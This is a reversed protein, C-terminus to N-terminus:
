QSQKRLLTAPDYISTIKMAYSDQRAIDEDTVFHVDLLGNCRYGTKLFNMESLALSWGDLWDKLKAMQQETANSHILLDIDSNLQASCTNTSGFLYVAKVGFLEFDMSDAIKEAMYHRWKWGQARQNATEAVSEERYPNEREKEQPTDLYAVAIELDANMRVIMENGYFSKPVDIVKVVDSLHSYNPIIESFYNKSNNFFSRNFVSKPDEPYLPLYHIGSEVMDQFFHTGFSLEPRFMSKEGAVELLMATNCIDSYTVPVGLKIDGRSGWRGPGILIFTKKALRQNLESVAKGVGIMDQYSELSAYKEPDVYVVTKIGSVKGNSVYRSSSFIQTKQWIDSPIAPPDKADGKSQPRCQLLYLSEGDSAFEIDVAVGLTEKLEYLISHLQQIVSTKKVLGDFTVLFVDKKFDTTIPNMERLLDDKIVSVVHQLCPIKEGYERILQEIPLTLFENNEVDIVDLFRSSYKQMEEPIRNLTLQPQGPSILLPYDDKLRDVARTGLGMVLRVLGDERKIRPSWRFENNSFAVGAFLPFYYPGVQKGVVEQIIIGMQESCDLLNRQARYEIADPNFVSAYVELISDVVRDLRERKNGIYPIFLSKYKGSFSSGIQDELMSSSRVILPKGECQDLLYSLNKLLYPSIKLSKITQIVKPYLIRAKAIELYKHENLEELNNENILKDFENVPIYWTKPMKVTAFEPHSAIKSKIIQNALFIGTAKGGIKEDNKPTAVVSDLLECFSEVTVYKRINDIRDPQDTLFRRILEVVLWRNTASESSSNKSVAQLYRKLAKSIDNIGSDKKNIIKIMEYTKFQYIWCNVKEYITCDSLTFQAMEFVSESFSVVDIAKVNELPINVENCYSYESWGFKKLIEGTTQPQSVALLSLMKECVHLLLENNSVQLLKVIEQWNKEVNDTSVLETKFIVSGIKRAISQLLKEEQPLFCLKAEDLPYAAIVQGRVVGEVLIDASLTKTNAAVVASNYNKGDVVITVTCHQPYSFGSPAVKSAEMLGDSLQLCSLADEVRYLCDLEKAREMAEEFKLLDNM